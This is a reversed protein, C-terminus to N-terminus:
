SPYKFFLQRVVNQVVKMTQLPAQMLIIKLSEVAEGISM